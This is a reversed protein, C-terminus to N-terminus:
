IFEVSPLLNGHGRCLSTLVLNFSNHSSDHFFVPQLTCLTGAYCAFTFDHSLSPSLSSNKRLVVFCHFSVEFLRSLLTQTDRRMQTTWDDVCDESSSNPDKTACTPEVHDEKQPKRSGQEKHSSDDWVTSPEGLNNLERAGDLFKRCHQIFNLDLDQFEAHTKFLKQSFEEADQEFIIHLGCMKIELDQRETLILAGFVGSAQNLYKEQFWGRPLYRCFGYSGAAQM